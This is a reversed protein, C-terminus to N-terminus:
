IISGIEFHKTLGDFILHSIQNEFKYCYSKLAEEETKSTKWSFRKINKIPSNYIM